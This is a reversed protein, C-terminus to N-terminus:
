IERMYILWQGTDQLRDKALVEFRAFKDFMVEKEFPGVASRDGIERGSKSEIVWLVNGHFNGDAVEPDISSHLFRDEVRIDGPEYEAIQADTLNGSSGRFVTGEHTGLKELAQSVSTVRPAVREIDEISGRSLARNLEQHGTGTIDHLAAVDADSLGGEADPGGDVTSPAERQLRWGDDSHHEVDRRLWADDSSEGHTDGRTERWADDEIRHRPM